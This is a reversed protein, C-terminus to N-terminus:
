LTPEGGATVPCVQTLACEALMHAIRELSGILATM